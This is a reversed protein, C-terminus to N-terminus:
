PTGPATPIEKEQPPAQQAAPTEPATQDGATSTAGGSRRGGRLRGARKGNTGTHHQEHCRQHEPRRRARGGALDGCALRVARLPRDRLGGTGEPGKPARWMLPGPESIPKGRQKPVAALGQRRGGAGCGAGAPGAAADLRAPSPHTHEGARVGEGTGCGHGGPGEARMVGAGGPQQHRTRRTLIPPETPPRPRTRFSIDGWRIAGTGPM